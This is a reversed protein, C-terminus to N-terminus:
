LWELLDELRQLHYNENFSISKPFSAGSLSLRVCDLNAEKACLVNFPHSGAHVCDSAKLSLNDIAIQIM